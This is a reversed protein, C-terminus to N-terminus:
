GNCTTKATKFFGWNNALHISLQLQQSARFHHHSPTHLPKFVTLLQNQTHADNMKVLVRNHKQRQNGPRTDWGPKPEEVPSAAPCLQM